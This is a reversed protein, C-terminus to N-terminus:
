KVRELIILTQLTERFLAIPESLIHTCRSPPPPPSKWTSGAAIRYKKRPLMKTYSSGAAAAAAICHKRSFLPIPRKQFPGVSFLNFWMDAQWAPFRSMCYITIKNEGKRRCERSFPILRSFGMEYLHTARFYIFRLILCAQTHTVTLPIIFMTALPSLNTLYSRIGTLGWAV